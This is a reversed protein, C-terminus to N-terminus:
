LRAIVADTFATTGVTPRDDDPIRLDDTVDDGEAVVALVAARLAEGAEAEGIHDLLM